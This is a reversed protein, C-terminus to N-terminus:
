IYFISIERKNKTKTSLIGKEGSHERIGEHITGQSETNLYIISSKGDCFLIKKGWIFSDFSTLYFTSREKKEECLSLSFFFNTTLSSICKRQYYLLYIPLMSMRHHIFVDIIDCAARISRIRIKVVISCSILLRKSLSVKPEKLCVM